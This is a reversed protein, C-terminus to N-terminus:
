LRERYREEFVRLQQQQEPTLEKGQLHWYVRRAIIFDKRDMLLSINQLLVPSSIDDQELLRLWLNIGPYDDWDPLLRSISEHFGDPPPQPYSSISNLCRLRQKADRGQLLAAMVPFYVVPPAGEFYRISLKAVQDDDAAATKRVAEIAEPEYLQRRMMEELAFVQQQNERGALLELLDNSKFHSGAIGRIISFVAGNAWHWLTYCTWVAGEVYANRNLIITAGAIADIGETTESGVVEEKYVERLSCDKDALITNLKQYDEQDFAKGEAKELDVGPPLVLRDFFGLATWYLRVTDIRCQSDGCVVTEVNMYFAQSYGREDTIEFLTREVPETRSIGPHILQIEHRILNSGASVERASDRRGITDANLLFLVVLWASIKLGEPMVVCKLYNLM